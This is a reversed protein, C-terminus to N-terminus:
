SYEFKASWLIMEVALDDAAETQDRFIEFLVTRGAVFDTATLTFSFLTLGFATTSLAVTITDTTRTLSGGMAGNVALVIYSLDLVVDGTTASSNIVGSIVASGVYDPPVIFEGRLGDKTSALDFVWPTPSILAGTDIIDYALKAVVGSSGPVTLGGLIPIPNPM